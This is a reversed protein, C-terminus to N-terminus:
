KVSVSKISSWSGYLTKGDEIRYARIRVYWKKNKTLGSINKTITSESGPNRYYGNKLKSTFQKNTAFQIQYSKAGSIKKWSFRVQGNGTATAYNMVTKAPVFTVTVTTSAAKYGPAKSAKITITTSGYAKMTVIGNSSVTAIKKNKSTYSLKGLAYADLSFTTNKKYVKKVTKRVQITQKNLSVPTPTAIPTSTPTLTATPTPKPTATPTPKQTVTPMPKPTATPMPMATSTPKPTVTPTIINKAYHIKVNTLYEPGYIKIKNWSDESGEYYIDTMKDCSINFHDMATVSEPITVRELNDCDFFVRYPLTTIGSPITVSTLAKCGYFAEQGLKTVSSPIVINKLSSCGGFAERPIETIGYPLNISELSYCSKFVKESLSNVSSPLVFQKVTNQGIKHIEQIGNEFIVKNIDACVLFDEKWYKVSGPITLSDCCVGWFAHYGIKEITRPLLISSFNQQYAFPKSSDSDKCAFAGDSISTVGTEVKISVIEKTWYKMWPVIGLGMDGRSFTISSNPAGYGYMDGTGWIKLLGNQDISWYCHEGCIGMARVNDDIDDDVGSTGCFRCSYSNGTGSKEWLHGVNSESCSSLTESKLDILTTMAPLSDREGSNYGEDELKRNDEDGEFEVTDEGDSFENAIVVNGSQIIIAAMLILAMLKKRM